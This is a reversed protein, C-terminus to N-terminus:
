PGDAVNDPQGRLMIPIVNEVGRSKSFVRVEDDVYTSARAQPSCVVILYRSAELQQAIAIDYDTGVMDGEYRFISLEDPAEQWTVPLATTSSNVNLNKPLSLMLVTTVSSRTMSSPTLLSM